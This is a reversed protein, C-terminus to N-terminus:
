EDNDCNVTAAACDACNPDTSPECPVGTAGGAMAAVRCADCDTSHDDENKCQPNGGDPTAECAVDLCLTWNSYLLIANPSAQETCLNACATPDTTCGTAELCARLEACGTKEVLLDVSADVAADPTGLSTNSCAAVMALTLGAGFCRTNTM